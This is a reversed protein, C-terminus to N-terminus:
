RLKMTINEKEQATIAESARTHVFHIVSFSMKVCANSNSTKM